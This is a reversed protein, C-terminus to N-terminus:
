TYDCLSSRLQLRPDIIQLGGWIPDPALPGPSHEPAKGNRRPTIWSAFQCIARVDLDVIQMRGNQEILTILYGNRRAVSARFDLPRDMETWETEPGFLQINGQWEIGHAFRIVWSGPPVLLRFYTGGHIYGAMVPRDTEPDFLFVAYDKGPLTKVQLPLTAPLGSRNWMLGTRPREAVASTLSLLLLIIAAVIRM